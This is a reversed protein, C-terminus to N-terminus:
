RDSIFIEIDIQWQGVSCSSCDLFYMPALFEFLRGRGTKRKVAMFQVPPVQFTVLEEMLPSTLPRNVLAPTVLSDSDEGRGFCFLRDNM